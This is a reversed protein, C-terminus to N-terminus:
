GRKKQVMEDLKEIEPTTTKVWEQADAPWNTMRGAARVLNEIASSAYSHALGWDEDAAAMKALNSFRWASEYSFDKWHAFNGKFDAPPPNPDLKKQITEAKQKWKQVEGHNPYEKLFDDCLSIVSPVLGKIAAEPQKTKLAQELRDAEFKAQWYGVSLIDGSTISAKDDDYLGM